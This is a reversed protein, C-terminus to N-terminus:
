HIGAFHGGGSASFCAPLGVEALRDELEISPLFYDAAKAAFRGRMLDGELSLFGDILCDSHCHVARM